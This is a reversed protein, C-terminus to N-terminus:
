GDTKSRGKSRVLRNWEEVAAEESGSWRTWPGIPCREPDPCSYMIGTGRKRVSIGGRGCVCPMPVPKKKEEKAKAM